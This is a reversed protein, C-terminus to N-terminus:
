AAITEKLVEAYEGDKIDLDQLAAERKIEIEDGQEHSAYTCSSPAIRVTPTASDVDYTGNSPQQQAFHDLLAVALNDHSRVSAGAIAKESQKHDIYIGDQKSGKVSWVIDNQYHELTWSLPTFVQVPSPESRTRPQSDSKPKIKYQNLRNEVGCSEGTKEDAM